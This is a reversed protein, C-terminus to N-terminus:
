TILHRYPDLVPSDPFSPPPPPVQPSLQLDCSWAVDALTPPEQCALLTELVARRVEGGAAAAASSASADPRARSAAPAAASAPDLSDRLAADLSAPLAKVDALALGGRGTSGSQLRATILTVYAFSGGSCKVLWDVVPGLDAWAEGRLRPRLLSTVHSRMDQVHRPDGALIELPPDALRALASRVAPADGRATVALAVWGPLEGVKALLLTLIENRSIVNHMVDHDRDQGPRGGEDLGDILIVVPSPRFPLGAAAAEARM